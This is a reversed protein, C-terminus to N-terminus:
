LEDDDAAQSALFDELPGDLDPDYGDALAAALADAPAVDVKTQYPRWAHLPCIPGSCEKVDKRNYGTCHLCMAKIANMRGGTRQYAREVIRTASSPIEALHAKQQENM